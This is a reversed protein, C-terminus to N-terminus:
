MTARGSRPRSVQWLAGYFLPTRRGVRELWWLGPVTCVVNVQISSCSIRAQKAMEDIRYAVQDLERSWPDTPGIYSGRYWRSPLHHRRQDLSAHDVDRYIWGGESAADGLKSTSSTTSVPGSSCSNFPAGSFPETCWNQSALRAELSASWGPEKELQKSCRSRSECRKCTKFFTFTRCTTRAAESDPLPSTRARGTERVLSGVPATVTRSETQALYGLGVSPLLRSEGRLHLCSASESLCPSSSVSVSSSEGLPTATKSRGRVM